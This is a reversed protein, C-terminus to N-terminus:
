INGSLANEENIEKRIKKCLKNFGNGYIYGITQSSLYRNQIAYMNWRLESPNKESEKIYNILAEFSDNYYSQITNNNYINDIEISLRTSMHYAEESYLGHKKITYELRNKLEEVVM